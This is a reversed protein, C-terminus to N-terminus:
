LLNFDRMVEKERQEMTSGHRLGKLHLLAHIFLLAVFNKYSLNFKSFEKRAEQLDIFIEGSTKELPFSLVNAPANKNRYTKNLIKSKQNSVFVLSLTYNKGLIKTKLDTFPLRPPNGKTTNKTRFGDKSM